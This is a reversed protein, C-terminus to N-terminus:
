DVRAGYQGQLARIEADVEAESRGLDKLIRAYNRVARKLNAHEHGNRRTFDLFIGLMRRSLPEAEHSRDTDRLLNALNSLDRAVNQHEGGYRKEDIALARRMLPEAEERRNTAHLLQALDNLDTAVHPHEPGYSREEIELARRYLCEAEQLRNLDQLVSGLNNLHGAVKPHEPGYNKEDIALARRMLPEAEQLRNTDRLVQALNNLDPALAPDEPGYSREKIELAQRHLLEAEELRNTAQLLSALNNLATAVQPTKEGPSKGFIGIGRQMLREAEPFRDTDKLLQALNILDRAVDPHEPGYNREDIELARRYLREAEPYLAKTKLLLGLSIMVRTTPDAISAEDAKEVIFAVHPGLPNWRPWTRVDQPEAPAAAEVLRLSLILWERREPEPQRSRLIEQVVRHVAVTEAEADWGVLSYNALTALAARLEGAAERSESLEQRLLVIAERWIGEAAEGELVFLPVPEPALWALLRLLAVEGAGLRDITTQWTVALSRPYQMLREDYWEQIAPLHARWQTLYDALSTRQQAIYAGAQELALALGGLEQALAAADQPDSALKRRGRESRKLLFQTAAEPALVDIELPEVNASWQALRSTILVSGGRLRALLDQAVSAAEETDINDLILFWGRHQHLWRLAAAVRVEQKTAVQEPLDLVLPGILAALNRRLNEPSDAVVFLLASYDAEHRWAYEVALRTKGVGGLGHLAKGVIATAHGDVAHRLSEHLEALFGERGKFLDRLSPYPLAIPKPRGLDPFPLVLVDEILKATTTLADRHEGFDKIWARYAQQCAHLDAPETDPQEPTFGTGTLFVYTKRGYHKALMFEWQTYSARTQSTAARYRDSIPIAGLAAAHTDTPFAGCREGVLLVVADCQQIYDSLREILTAPGQSFHEQDRVELGKRRLVRAVERRYGGLDDSVASIFVRFRTM